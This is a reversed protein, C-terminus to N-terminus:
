YWEQQTSHCSNLCDEEEHDVIAGPKLAFMNIRVQEHVSDNVDANM